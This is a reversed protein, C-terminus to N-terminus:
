FVLGLLPLQVLEFTGNDILAQMKDFAADIWKSRDPRRLAEAFTRPETQQADAPVVSSYAYDLGQEVSWQEEHVGDFVYDLGAQMAHEGPVATDDKLLLEDDDQEDEKEEETEEIEEISVQLPAYRNPSVIPTGSAWRSPPPPAASATFGERPKRGPGQSVAPPRGGRVGPEGERKGRAVHVGRRRGTQAARAIPASPPTARARTAAAPAGPRELTYRTFLIHPPAVIVASSSELLEDHSARAPPRLLAHHVAIAPAAPLARALRSQTPTNPPPLSRKPGIYFHVLGPYPGDCPSPFHRLLPYLVSALAAVAAPPPTCLPMPKLAILSSSPSGAFRWPAAFSPALERHLPYELARKCSAERVAPYRSLVHPFPSPRLITM